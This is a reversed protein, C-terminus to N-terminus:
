LDEGMFLQYLKEQSERDPEFLGSQVAQQIDNVLYNMWEGDRLIKDGDGSMFALLASFVNSIIEDDSASENLQRERHCSEMYIKAYRAIDSVGREKAEVIRSKKKTTKKM